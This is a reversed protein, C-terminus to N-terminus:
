DDARSTRHAARYVDPELFVLAAAPVAARVRVEVEDIIDALERVTLDHRFELKAAVVIDDPGNHETRLHIVQLVEDHSEMATRIAAVDHPSAAEGLLLSSMEVALVVAVVVLLAGIALSGAADWRPEDTVAALIVGTLAFALGVLAAFDELLVVPIEANKTGRIFRVWSTSSRKMRGGERVATRLSFSEMVFAALLVAVAWGLGEPEHPDRLKEVGEFIAFCGGASFLVLAVLFAYFYRRNAYGFPHEDDAPQRARKGGIMLLGQNGTDAVSHIAEALMSAAGTFLFAVFKSLAIGLNALFAAVIARKSGEHV